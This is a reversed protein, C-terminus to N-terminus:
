GPPYSADVNVLGVILADAFQQPAEVSIVCDMMATLVWRDEWQQSGNIFPMQQGDTCYDPSVGTAAMYDCAYASRFLVCFVQANDTSDAGHFDLQMGISVAEADTITTPNGDMSQDWATTNTGLRGRNLLTLLVFDDSTPEPVQNEQAIIVEVGTPLISLLFARLVGSVQAQQISPTM